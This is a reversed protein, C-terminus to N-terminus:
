ALMTCVRYGDVLFEGTMINIGARGAAAKYQFCYRRFAKEDGRVKITGTNSQMVQVGSLIAAERAHDSNCQIHVIDLQKM